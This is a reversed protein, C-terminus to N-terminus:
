SGVKTGNFYVETVSTENFVLGTLTTQNYVIPPFELAVLTVKASGDNQANAGGGVTNVPTYTVNNFTFEPM